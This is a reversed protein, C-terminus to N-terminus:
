KVGTYVTTFYAHIYVGIERGYICDHFLRTHIDDDHDGCRDGDEADVTTLAAKATAIPWCEAIESDYHRNAAGGVKSMLMRLGLEYATGTKVGGYHWNAAGCVKSMLMRLGLEYATGTEVARMNVCRCVMQAHYRLSQGITEQPESAFCM